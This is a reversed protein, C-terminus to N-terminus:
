LGVVEMHVLSFDYEDFLLYMIMPMDALRDPAFNSVGIARIKKEKYLEQLAIHEMTILGYKQQSLCDM